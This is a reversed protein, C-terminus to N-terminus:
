KQPTNESIEHHIVYIYTTAFFIITVLFFIEIQFKNNFLFYILVLKLAARM